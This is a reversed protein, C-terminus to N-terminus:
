SLWSEPPPGRIAALFIVGFAAPELSFPEVSRAAARTECFFTALFSEAL